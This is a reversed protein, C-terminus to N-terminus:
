QRNAMDALDPLYSWFLVGGGGCFSCFGLRLGFVSYIEFLTSIFFGLVDFIVFRSVTITAAGNKHLAATHSGGRGNLGRHFNRLVLM